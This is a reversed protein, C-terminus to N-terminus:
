ANAASNLGRSAEVFGYPSGVLFLNRTKLELVPYRVIGPAAAAGRKAAAGAKALSHEAAKAAKEANVAARRRSELRMEAQRSKHDAVAAEWEAKAADLATKRSDAAGRVAAMIKKKKGINVGLDKYDSDSLETLAEFDVEQERFAEAFEAYGLDDLVSEVTPAAAEPPPVFPPAPDDPDGLGDLEAVDAGTVATGDPEQDGPDSEDAAAALRDAEAEEVAMRRANDQNLMLDLLVVGGFGFGMLQFGGTFAPFREGFLKVIQHIQATVEDYIQQTNSAYHMSDLLQGSLFRRLKPNTGIEASAAAATAEAARGLLANCMVPLFEVRGSSASEATIVFHETMLERGLARVADVCDIMSAAGDGANKYGLGSLNPHGDHLGALVLVCQDPVVEPQEGAPVPEHFGRKLALPRRGGEPIPETPDIKPYFVFFNEHVLQVVDGSDLDIQRKWTHTGLAERYSQEVLAAHQEALPFLRDGVGVFWTGRRM